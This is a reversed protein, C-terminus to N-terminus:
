IELESDAHQGCSIVIITKASLFKGNCCSKLGKQIDRIMRHIKDWCTWMFCGQFDAFHQMAKNVSCQDLGLVVNVVSDLSDPIVKCATQTLLNGIMAIRRGGVENISRRENRNVARLNCGYASATLQDLKYGTYTQVVKSIAQMNRFTAVRDLKRMLRREELCPDVDHDRRSLTRNQVMYQIDPISGKLPLLCYIANPVPNSCVCFRVPNLHGTNGIKM